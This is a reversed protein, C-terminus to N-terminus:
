LFSSNNRSVSWFTHSGVLIRLNSRDAFKFSRWHLFLIKLRMVLFRFNCITISSLVAFGTMHISVPVLICFIFDCSEIFNNFCLTLFSVLVNFFGIWNVRIVFRPRHTRDTALALIFLTHPRNNWSFRLYAYRINGRHFRLHCLVFLFFNNIQDLSHRFIFNFLKWLVQIDFYIRRQGTLLHILGRFM